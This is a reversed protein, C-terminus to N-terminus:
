ASARAARSFLPFTQPGGAMAPFTSLFSLLLHFRSPMFIAVVSVAFEGGSRALFRRSRKTRLGPFAGLRPHRSSQPHAPERAARATGCALSGSAPRSRQSPPEGQPQQDRPARARLQELFVSRRALKRGTYQCVGGDREWIGRIGFRPRRLPVKAYNVAVIVTPVRVKGRPTNVAQDHDRVPLTLWEEWRVPQIAEDAQVDLATAANSALMCFAEAPTTVHIAQWNRNLVLVTPQKLIDSM